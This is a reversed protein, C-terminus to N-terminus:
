LFVSFGKLGEAQLKKIQEDNIQLSACEPPINFLRVLADRERLEESTIDIIQGRRIVRAQVGTFNDKVWSLKTQNMPHYEQSFVEVSKIKSTPALETVQAFSLSTKNQM